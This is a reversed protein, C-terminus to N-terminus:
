ELVMGKMWMRIDHIEGEYMPTHEEYDPCQGAKNTGRNHFVDEYTWEKLYHHKDCRVLGEGGAVSTCHTCNGCTKM